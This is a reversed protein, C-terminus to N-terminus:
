EELTLFQLYGTMDLVDRVEPNVHVLKMSGQKNMRKQASFLIRLGASAIYALDKMEFVLYTIGELEQKIIKELAPADIARLEGSLAISLMNGTKEKKIEM